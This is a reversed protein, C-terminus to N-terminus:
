KLFGGITMLGLVALWVILTRNVLAQTEGIWDTESMEEGGTDGGSYQIAGLGSAVIINRSSSLSDGQVKRWGELADVLSGGLAFGLAQLRASPWILIDYLNYVSAAYGGHLEGFNDKLRIVLAYLLAGAMGLVVFWFLVGFIHDHSRMLISSAVDYGTRDGGPQGDVKLQTELKHVADEDDKEVAELYANVMGNLSPGLSYVFVAIALLVTLGINIQGLLRGTFFLALLPPVLTILVGVPGQWYTFAGCKLEIWRLYREFWKFNRLHDLSGVFYELALGVLISILTM